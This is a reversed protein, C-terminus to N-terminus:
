RFRYHRSSYRESMLDLKDAHITGETGPNFYMYTRQAHKLLRNFLARAGTEYM